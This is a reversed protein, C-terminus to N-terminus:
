LKLVLTTGGIGDFICTNNVPVYQRTIIKIAEQAVMGGTVSSINHLERGGVRDVEAFQNNLAEFDIKGNNAIMDDLQSRSGNEFALLIPLLTETNQLENLMTKRTQIDGKEIRLQPLLSGELVKVHAANKCFAEIEGDPIVDKRSFKKEMSRVSQSVEAVDKRAKSKYINQLKIYDASKAKMDPLSGPLPLVGHTEYFTKIAAAIIWFSASDENIVKCSDKEFMERCGSKISFPAVTKLVAAAAEDFNEEGGEANDTRAAARVMDRFQTKDKFTDPAKGENNQKWKELYYLLILAYPVHGHDHDELKDLDDLAKVEALLEPWPSLLRLDQISDPDPHTDVIPFVSPLQISFSSYFGASQIHILCVSYQQAYECIIRRQEQPLPACLIILNYPRLRSPDKLLDSLPTTIAHGQVDPNLEELLQKCEEARSQGLSQSRLFFNIGLDAETVKASDAITFNGISPLVLNKLTEVGAVSSGSGDDGNSAIVLLVHSDELAQQGSAAWLRLQRDYKKEKATPAQILPPTTATATM